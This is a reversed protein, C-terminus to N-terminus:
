CFGYTFVFRTNAMYPALMPYQRVLTAVSAYAGRRSPGRTPHYRHRAKEAHTCVAERYDAHHKRVGASGHGTLTESIRGNAGPKTLAHCHLSPLNHPPLAAEWPLFQKGLTLSQTQYHSQLAAGYVVQPTEATSELCLKCFLQGDEVLFPVDHPRVELVAKTGRHQGTDTALARILFARMTPVCSGQALTMPWSNQPM